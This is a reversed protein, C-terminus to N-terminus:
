KNDLIALKKDLAARDMVNGQKIVADIKLTNNIDDLPNAYLILLDALMSEQIRGLEGEINFYEAPRTTATRLVELNSLGSKALVALEEHLSRGPTLFFIPCDTGAMIGIGKENIQNIMKYNYETWAHNTESAPNASFAAIREKWKRETSDPLYQFSEQFEARVFPRETMATNLASTPIQWTQNKYLADLVEDAKEQSYNEVAITRQASHIRSRLIGGQDKRGDHLLKKRQEYLVDSNTACSLELNRMHEISNLGADSASIVDMSLPVHGTVKLNNKKASATLAKFQEPSLMEYAKLLDVENDVLNNIVSEVDEITALGVSLEPRTPASGDYVNPMGDLLPGAYKVRPTTTPNQLSKDRWKKVFATKGGTDRVSTIGYVLFLDFMRPALNEMYAFHVHADWLGPIMYKGTGDIINNDKSLHLENTAAVKTIKGDQIVVTQSSKLGDEPDITSINTICTAQDFYLEDKKCSFFCLTTALLLLISKKM